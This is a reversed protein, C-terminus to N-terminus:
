FVCICAACVVRLRMQAKDPWFLCLANLGIAPTNKKKIETGIAPTNKKKIETSGTRPGKRVLHIHSNKAAARIKENVHRERHTNVEKQYLEFCMRELLVLYKSDLISAGKKRARVSYGSM